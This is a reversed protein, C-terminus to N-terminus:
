GGGGGPAIERFLVKDKAPLREGKSNFEPRNFIYHKEVGTSSRSYGDRDKGSTNYKFGMKLLANHEKPNAWGPRRGSGPGGAYIAKITGPNELPRDLIDRLTAM